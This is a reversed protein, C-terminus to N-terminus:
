KLPWVTEVGAAGVLDIQPLPFIFRGGRQMFAQERRLIGNRFHWPFVIFYDPNKQRAEAESVIPIRSRPTFAGFKDENVEAICGVLEPGIGCYQILV